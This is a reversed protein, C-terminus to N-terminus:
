RGAGEHEQGRNLVLCSVASDLVSAEFLLGGAECFEHVVAYDVCREVFGFTNKVDAAPGAGHRMM